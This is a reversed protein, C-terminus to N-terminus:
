DDSEEDSSEDDDFVARNSLNNKLWRAAEVRGAHTGHFLGESPRRVEYNKGAVLRVDGVYRDSARHTVHWAPKVADFQEFRQFRFYRSM